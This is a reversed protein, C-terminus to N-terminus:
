QVLSLISPDFDVPYFMPELEVPLHAGHTNTILALQLQKQMLLSKSPFDALDKPITFYTQVALAALDPVMDFETASTLREYLAFLNLTWNATYKLVEYYVLNENYDALIFPVDRIMDFVPLICATPHHAGFSPNSSFIRVEEGSPLFAELLANALDSPRPSILRPEAVEDIANKLDYISNVFNELGDNSDLNPSLNITTEIKFLVNCFNSVSNAAHLSKKDVISLYVLFDKVSQILASSLSVRLDFDKMIITRITSYTTCFAITIAIQVVTANKLPWIM